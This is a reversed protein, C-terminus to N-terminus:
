DKTGGFATNLSADNFEAVGALAAANAGFFHGNTSGKVNDNAYVNDGSFSGDIPNIVAGTISINTAGTLNGNLKNTGFDATFTGSLLYSQNLGKVTYQATGSAPLTTSTRDGVYYAQYNGSGSPNESWNGFWVDTSAVQVFDFKGLTDHDAPAGPYHPTLVYRTLDNGLDTGNLDTIFGYFDVRTGGEFNSVGIGAHGAEHPSDPVAVSEGVSISSESGNASNTQNGVIDAALLSGVPLLTAVATALLTYRKTNMLFDEYTQLLISHQSMRGAAKLTLRNDGYLPYSPTAALVEKGM